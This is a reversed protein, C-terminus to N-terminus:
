FSVRLKEIEQLVTKLFPQLASDSLSERISIKVEQLPQLYKQRAYRYTPSQLHKFAGNQPDSVGFKWGRDANWEWLHDEGWIQFRTAHGSQDQWYFIDFAREADRLWLYTKEGPAHKLLRSSIMSFM